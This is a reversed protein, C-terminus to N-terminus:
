AHTREWSEIDGTWINFLPHPSIINNKQLQQYWKPDRTKVKALLHDWEYELQGTSVLIPKDLFEVKKGHRIKNRDFHYRRHDAEDALWDLYLKVAVIPKGSDKLRILQPHNTYGKTKGELVAKALLSERWCALLGQRDLYQPHISWLRM